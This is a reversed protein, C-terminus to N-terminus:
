CHRDPNVDIGALLNAVAIVQLNKRALVGRFMTEPFRGPLRQTRIRPEPIFRM